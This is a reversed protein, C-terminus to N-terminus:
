GFRYQRRCRSLRLQLDRIGGARRYKRFAGVGPASPLNGVMKPTAASEVSRHMSRGTRWESADTSTSSASNPSRWHRYRSRRHMSRLAATRTAASTSTTPKSPWGTSRDSEAIVKFSNDDLSGSGANNLDFNTDTVGAGLYFGNDAASAQPAIAALGLAGLAVIATFKMNMQSRESPIPLRILIRFANVTGSGPTANHRPVRKSACVTALRRCGNQIIRWVIFTLGKSTPRTGTPAPASTLRSRCM